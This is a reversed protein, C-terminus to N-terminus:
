LAVSDVGVSSGSADALPVLAGRQARLLRVVSRVDEESAMELHSRWTSFYGPSCRLRLYFLLQLAPYPGGPRLGFAPKECLRKRVWAVAIASLLVKYSVAHQVKSLQQLLVSRKPDALMAKVSVDGYLDDFRAFMFAALGTFQLWLPVSSSFYEGATLDFISSAGSVDAFFCDGTSNNCGLPLAEDLKLDYALSQMVFEVFSLAPLLFVVMLAVRLMKSKYDVIVVGHPLLRQALRSALYFSMMVKWFIYLYLVTTFYSWVLLATSGGAHFYGPVAVTTSERNATVCLSTNVKTSGGFSIGSDRFLGYECGDIVADQTRLGIRFLTYALPGLVLLFPIAHAWLPKRFLHAHLEREGEEDGPGSDGSAESQLLPEQMEDLSRILKGISMLSVPALAM